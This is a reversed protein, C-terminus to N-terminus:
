GANLINSLLMTVEQKHPHITHWLFTLGIILLLLVILGGIAIASSFYPYEKIFKAIRWHSVDPVSIRISVNVYQDDM